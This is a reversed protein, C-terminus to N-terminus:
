GWPRDYILKRRAAPSVNTLEEVLLKGSFDNFRQLPVTPIRLEPHWHQKRPNTNKQM